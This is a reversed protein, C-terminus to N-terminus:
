PEPQHSPLDVEVGGGTVLRTLESRSRIGLKRFIRTLHAEVTAVSLFLEQAVERNKRGDAVMRAVRRETPTLEGSSRGPAVRDLEGTARDAWLRAGMAIFANRAQGLSDAAATRKGARVQARGLLLLSRAADPRFGLTDFISAAEALTAAATPEGRGLAVTGTAREVAADVWRSDVDAAQRRLTVLLSEAAQVDGALTLAEIADPVAPIAGPHRFGMDDLARVSESLEAAAAQVEGQSLALLGLVSHARAVGPREGRRSATDIRRQAASRAEDTRGLWAAVLALRYFIWSEVHPDECDRASEIARRLLDDALQLNGSAGEVAALDYLSYPRWREHQRRDADAVAEELLARARPLDGSWLLQEALLVRPGSWLLPRGIRDELAVARAMLGPRPAGALTELNSLGACASMQFELDGSREAYVLAEQACSVGARLDGRFIGRLWGLQDLVQGRLQPDEGADDLAAVLKAEGTGLDEDELQARTILAEARGPGPPLHAILDDALELARTMEGAAALYRVLDLTHPRLDDLDDPSTLRLCHGALDVAVGVAGRRHARDAATALQRAIDADPRDTSLGLHRARQDPDVTHAALRAHTDRRTLPHMRDYVVKGIVPHAFRVELSDSVTLLGQGEATMLLADVDTEPLAERLHSVSTRAVASVTELLPIVSEPTADLRVLIASQLSDPLRVEDVGTHDGEAPHLNRALELAFMPNGASVELIRRLARPSIVEVVQGVVKRLDALGMPGVEVTAVREPSWVRTLELPDASRVTARVTALVGVPQEDLRRLAYRLARSSAADLWQLDDIALLVPGRDILESLTELVARGRVIPDGDARWVGDDVPTERFLDGLASMSMTLEEEAPRALLVAGGAGRWSAVARRWLATKGIGPDGRFVLARAGAGGSVHSLWEDILALEVERGALGSGAPPSPPVGM